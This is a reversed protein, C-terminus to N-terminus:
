GLRFDHIFLFSYYYALKFPISQYNLTPLAISIKVENSEWEKGKEIVEMPIARCMYMLLLGKDSNANIKKFDFTPLLMEAKAFVDCAKEWPSICARHLTEARLYNGIGVFFSFNRATLTGNFFDQNLLVESIPAKFAPKHINAIINKCFAAHDELINTKQHTKWRVDIPDPSRKLDFSGERWKGM